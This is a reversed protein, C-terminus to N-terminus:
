VSDAGFAVVDLISKANCLVAVLRDVGLAIGGADPMKEDLATLFKEDTPYVTRQQASRLKATEAFRRRQEAADTLETYANALELGAIYLEWREARHNNQRCKRALAGFALPYGWLVTPASFGLRPEIREVLTLEFTGDAVARDATYGPTYRAFAEDVSLIEWEAGVDIHAGNFECTSTGYIAQAVTRLLQRADDLIRWCDADSRYWELMTFEPLHFRGQENQRFCPGILYLREYGAALMRKLHLEPSTRLFWHGSPEADIYDELAPSPIRVPTEVELFGASTFHARIAQLIQQRRQLNAALGRLRAADDPKASVNPIRGRAHTSRSM